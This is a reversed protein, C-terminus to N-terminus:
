SESSTPTAAADAKADSPQDGAGDEGEMEDQWQVRVVPPLGTNRVEVTDRWGAKNKLAMQLMPVNDKRLALDYAKQVLKLRIGGESCEERFESFSKGTRRRVEKEVLDVCCHCISACQILSLDNKLCTLLVQWGQDDFIRPRGNKKPPAPKM